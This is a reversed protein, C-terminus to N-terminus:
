ASSFFFDLLSCRAANNVLNNVVVDLCVTCERVGESVCCIFTEKILVGPSGNVVSLVCLARGVSLNTNFFSFQTERKEKEGM